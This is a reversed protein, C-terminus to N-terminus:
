DNAWCTGFRKRAGGAPESVSGDAMEASSPGLYREKPALVSM